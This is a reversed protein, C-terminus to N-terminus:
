NLFVNVLNSSSSVPQTSLKSKQQKAPKRIIHKLWLKNTNLTNLTFTPATTSGQDQQLKEAAVAQNILSYERPLSENSLRMTRM